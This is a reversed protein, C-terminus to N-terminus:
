VPITSSPKSIPVEGKPTEPLAAKEVEIHPTSRLPLFFEMVHVGIRDLLPKHLM